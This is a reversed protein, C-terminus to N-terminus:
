AKFTSFLSAANISFILLKSGFSAALVSKGGISLFIVIICGFCSVFVVVGAVVSKGGSLTTAVSKGVNSAVVVDFFLAVAVEADASFM